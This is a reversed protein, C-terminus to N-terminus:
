SLKKIVLSTQMPNHILHCNNQSGGQQRVYITITQNSAMDLVTFLDLRNISNSTPPDFQTLAAGHLSDITFTDASSVSTMLWAQYQTADDQINNFTLQVSFEYVGDSPATFVNTATNFPTGSFTDLLNRTFPVKHFDGSNGNWVFNTDAALAIKLVDTGGGVSNSFSVVGNGDTTLVQNANGDKIPLTYDKSGLGIKISGSVSLATDDDVYSGTIVLGENFKMTATGINKLKGM